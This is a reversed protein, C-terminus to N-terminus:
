CLLCLTDVYITRYGKCFTNSSFNLSSPYSCCGSSKNNKLTWSLMLFTFTKAFSLYLINYQSCTLPQGPGTLPLATPCHGSCQCRDDRWWPLECQSPDTQYRIIYKDRINDVEWSCYKLMLFVFFTRSYINKQYLNISFMQFIKFKFM